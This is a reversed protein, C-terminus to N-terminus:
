DPHEPRGCELGPHLHFGEPVIQYEREYDELPYFLIKLALRSIHWGFVEIM